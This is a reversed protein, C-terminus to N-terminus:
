VIIRIGLGSLIKVTIERQLHIRERQLLIQHFHQGRQLLILHGHHCYNPRRRQLLMKSSIDRQNQKHLNLLIIMMAVRIMLSLLALLPRIMRQISKLPILIHFMSRGREFANSKATNSSALIRRKNKVDLSM